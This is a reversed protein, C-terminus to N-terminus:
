IEEDLRIYQPLGGKYCLSVEGEILPRAYKEFAETLGNQTDNIWALPITKESNAMKDIEIISTGWRYPQESLRVLTTAVGSKGEIAARVAAAGVEQAELLDTASTLHGACRQLTSLEVARTKVNLVRACDQALFLATGSLQKHGFADECGNGASLECVYRGDSLKIGESVAVVVSDKTKLCEQVDAYFKEMTFSAEPLYILDVGECNEDKALVSAATLWGANRGMVEVILVSKLQYIRADYVLEKIVTAVFKAASGYGPTHDTAMLDNDITKPVGVFRIDSGIKKGYAALKCITDMSDNGGIYFFCNIEYKKLIAFIKQYDTEDVEAKKLKYRCSGLFSAPTRKLREVKEEEDLIEKLDVLNEALFGQIGNRMGYVKKAGADVAAQYVGALSANIAATPGGSQGVVINM